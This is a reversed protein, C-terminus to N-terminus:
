LVLFDLLYENKRLANFIDEPCNIETYTNPAINFWWIKDSNDTIVLRGLTAYSYYNEPDNEDQLCVYLFTEETERNSWVKNIADEINEFYVKDAFEYGDDSVFFRCM